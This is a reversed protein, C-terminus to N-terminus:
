CYPFVHDCLCRGTHGEFREVPTVFNDHSFMELAMEGRQPLSLLGKGFPLDRARWVPYSAFIESTPTQWDPSDREREL